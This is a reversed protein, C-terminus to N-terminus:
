ETVIELLRDLAPLDGYKVSGPLFNPDRYDTVDGFRFDNSDFQVEYKPAQGPNGVAQVFLAAKVVGETGAASHISIPVNEEADKLEDALMKVGAFLSMADHIQHTIRPPNYGFTYGAYLRGNEVIRQPVSEATPRREIASDLDTIFDDSQGYLDVFCIVGGDRLTEQVEPMDTWMAGRGLRTFYITLSTAASDVQQLKVLPVIEDYRPVELVQTTVRISDREIQDITKLRIDSPDPMSRGIITQWAGGVVNLYQEPKEQVEAIKENAQETFFATVDREHSPGGTPQPHADTWVAAEDAILPEYDQEVIPEDWGLQLYKNFWQYMRGRTVYNFNHDFHTFDECRVQDVADYLAYVQQMQPYGDTMMDITWDNAATMAQPIPAAVAALEVNGTEIRL